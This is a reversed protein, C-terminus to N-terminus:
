VSVFLCVSCVCVCALAWNYRVITADTDSRVKVLTEELKAKNQRQGCYWVKVVHASERM